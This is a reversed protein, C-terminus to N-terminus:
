SGAGAMKEIRQIATNIEQRGYTPFTSAGALETLANSLQTLLFPRSLGKVSALVEEIKNDGLIALIVLADFLMSDTQGISYVDPNAYTMALQHIREICDTLKTTPQDIELVARFVGLVEATVGVTRNTFALLESLRDAPLLMGARRIAKRVVVEDTSVRSSSRTKAIELLKTVLRARDAPDDFWSEEALLVLWAQWDLRDTSELESLLFASADEQEIELWELLAASRQEIPLNTDAARDAESRLEARSFGCFSVVSVDSKTGFWNSLFSRRDSEFVAKTEIEELTKSSDPVLQTEEIDAIILELFLHFWSRDTSKWDDTLFRVADATPERREACVTERQYIEKLRSDQARKRAAKPKSQGKAYIEFPPNCHLMPMRRKKQRGALIAESM